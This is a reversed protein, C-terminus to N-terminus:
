PTLLDAPLTVTGPTAIARRTAETLYAAPEVGALKASEILTYFLAAVKTGRESRSGYHNKRGVALARLGREVHNTDLPLAPETLFATLGSWLERMYRIAKGLASEPLVLQTDCWARIQAVIAASETQRRAACHAAREAEPLIRIQAEIEYLEGILDVVATAQPYSPAAEVYKRRAHAWCHALQFTPGARAAQRQDRLATYASYGDAIVWGQYDRLLAAAAATARSDAIRYCIADPAALAWAHWKTAGPHGLLPWRTEDAGVVAATLV